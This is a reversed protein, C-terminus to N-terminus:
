SDDEFRLTARLRIPASFSGDDAEIQAIVELKAPLALPGGKPRSRRRWWSVVQSAAVAAAGLVLVANAALTALSNV